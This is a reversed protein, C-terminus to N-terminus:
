PRAAAVDLPTASELVEFVANRVVEPRDLHIWHGAGPVVEVRGRTSIAALDGLWERQRDTATAACLVVLPFTFPGGREGLADRVERGSAPLGAFHRAMAIFSRPRSWHAQIADWTDPPMKGVEGMVRSVAAAARSGFSGLVARGVGEAGGRFRTVSFRVVGLAALVAGARSVLAGGRLTYRQEPGPEAWEQWTIPDVLVAGAVEAPHSHALLVAIFAGFSHAVLVVPPRIGGAQLVDHLHRAHDAATLGRPGLDSWGLGPRDYAIARTRAAVDRQLASWNLSSTAIGSLFVVAPTSTEAGLSAAPVAPAPPGLDRLHVGIGGVRLMRGPAPCRAADRRVGAHQYALAAALLAVSSGLALWLMPLGPYRAM